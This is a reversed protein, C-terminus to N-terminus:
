NDGGRPRDREAGVPGPEGDAPADAADQEEVEVGAVLPPQGDVALVLPHCRVGHGEVAVAAKLRSPLRSPATQASWTMRSHAVPLPASTRWDGSSSRNKLVREVAKLGSRERTATVPTPRSM